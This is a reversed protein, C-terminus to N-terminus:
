LRVFPFDGADMWESVRRLYAKDEYRKSWLPTYGSLICNSALCLTAGDGLYGDISHLREDIYLEYAKDYLIPKKGRAKYYVYPLGYPVNRLAWTAWCLADSLRNIVALREYLKGNGNM